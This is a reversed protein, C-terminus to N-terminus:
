KHHVRVMAHRIIRGGMQYGNQLVESVIQHEGEGESTVAEHLNPDFPQHLAEIKSVGMKELQKM